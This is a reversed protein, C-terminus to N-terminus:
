AAVEENRTAARRAAEEELAALEFQWCGAIKRGGLQEALNRVQRTTLGLVQAARAVDVPVSPALVGRPPVEASAPASAPAPPPQEHEALEAQLLAILDLVRAPAGVGDSRGAAVSKQLARLVDLLAQPSGLLVHCGGLRVAYQQFTPPCRYGHM